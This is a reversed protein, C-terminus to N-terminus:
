GVVLYLDEGDRYWAAGEATLAQGDSLAAELRLELYDDQELAPLAFEEGTVHLALTLLGEGTGLTITNRGIEVGNRELVLAATEVSVDASPLQILLYADTITLTSGDSEWGSFTVSASAPLAEAGARELAELRASLEDIQAQLSENERNLEFLRDSYYTPEKRVAGLCLLSVALAGAALILALIAPINPKKSM